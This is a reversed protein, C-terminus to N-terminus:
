NVQAKERCITEKIGMNNFSIVELRKLPHFTANLDQLIVSASNAGYWEGPKKKYRSYGHEVFNQISFPASKDKLNDLFLKIIERKCDTIDGSLKRNSSDYKSKVGEESFYDFNIQVKTESLLLYLVRGLIMQAVRIM